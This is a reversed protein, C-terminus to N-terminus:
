EEQADRVEKTIGCYAARFEEFGQNQECVQGGGSLTAKCMAKALDDDRIKNCENINKTKIAKIYPARYGCSDSSCLDSNGTIMAKCENHDASSTGFTECFSLDDKLWASIYNTAEKADLGRSKKWANLVESTMRGESALKGFCLHYDEYYERCLDSGNVGLADCEGASDAAVARCQFYEALLYVHGAVLPDKFDVKQIDFNNMCEQLVDGSVPVSQQEDQSFGRNIGCLLVFSVALVVAIDLRFGRKM